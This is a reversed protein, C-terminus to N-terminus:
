KLFRDPFQRIIGYTLTDSFMLMHEHGKDYADIDATWDKKLRSTVELTTLELHKYLMDTLVSKQWKPNATSLFEAISDANVRWTKQSAEVKETDSMKAAVIIDVAILIHEKLLEYLKNGAEEGYIPKIANGIDEQNRLLRGAVVQADKLDALSSIIYNRTYIIHDEWLQRMNVQLTLMSQSIKLDEDAASTMPKQTHAFANPGNLFSCLTITTLGATVLINKFNQM